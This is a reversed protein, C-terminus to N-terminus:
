GQAAAQGARWGFVLAPGITAGPGPYAMGFPCAAVNGAAFLGPIADGDLARLVRGASDTKLGGKTGLAGPLVRLAYFPPESVAQLSQSGQSFRDYAYSGRGFDRDANETALENFRDVTASLRAPPLGIAEALGALTNARVLWSPDSEPVTGASQSGAPDLTWVTDGALPRGARRRADFILWSSTSHFAYGGADFRHFARGFDSYNVAEDVFRDGRSDVVIGGPQACDTFLIRFFPADDITEGPVEMAPAWWAESMNGLRAGVAMGMILGDGRNSPPGAPAILPGRLFADVLETNREFGGSALVVAGRHLEGDAEVGVVSGNSTALERARTGTKIVADHEILTALLGAVLGQGRTAIGERERRDLEAPEPSGHSAENLTSPRVEYPDRRIRALVDRGVAIPLIELGRGETSGGPFEAHYDPFAMHQWRLPTCREVDELVDAGEELYRAGLDADVDGLDLAQLYTLGLERSDEIGRGAAWRNGPIWVVGGSIATTGGLHSAAEILTVRAGCTAAAVAASLGAAGSGVVVVDQKTTV